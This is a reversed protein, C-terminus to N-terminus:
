IIAAVVSDPFLLLQDKSKKINGKRFAPKLKPKADWVPLYYKAGASHDYKFPIHFGNDYAWRILDEVHNSTILTDTKNNSGFQNVIKKLTGLPVMYFGQQIGVWKTCRKGCPEKFSSIMMHSEFFRQIGGPKNKSWALAFQPSPSSYGVTKYSVNIGNIYYDSDKAIPVDTPKLDFGVIRSRMMEKFLVERDTAKAMAVKNEQNEIVSSLFLYHDLVTQGNKYESKLVSELEKIISRCEDFDDKFM